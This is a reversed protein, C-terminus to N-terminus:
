AAISAASSSSSRVRSQTITRWISLMKHVRSSPSVSSVSGCSQSVRLMAM